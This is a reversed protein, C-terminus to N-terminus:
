QEDRNISNPNPVPLTEDSRGVQGGHDALRSNSWRLFASHFLATDSRMRDQRTRRIRELQERPTEHSLSSEQAMRVASNRLQRRLRHMVNEETVVETGSRGVDFSFDDNPNNLQGLIIDELNSSSTIRQLWAREPNTGLSSVALPEVFQHEEELMRRIPHENRSPEAPYSYAELTSRRFSRTPFAATQAYSQGAFVAKTIPAPDEVYIPNGM